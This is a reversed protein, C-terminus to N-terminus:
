RALIGQVEEAEPSRLEEEEVQLLFQRPHQLAIFTIGLRNICRYLNPRDPQTRIIYSRRIM